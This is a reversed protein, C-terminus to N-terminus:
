RIIPAGNAGYVPPAVSRVPSLVSADPLSNDVSARLSPRGTALPRPGRPHIRTPSAPTAREDLEPTRPSPAPAPLTEAATEPRAEEPAAETAPVSPQDGHAYSGRIRGLAFPTSAALVTAALILGTVVYHARPTRAAARMAALLESMSAYRADPEPRLGVLLARRVRSPVVRGPPPRRVRGEATVAALDRLTRGNFPREGYLAEYFSVCFSYVDSRVDAPRGALQEPAMYAPTGLLTGTQTLTGGLVAMGSLTNPVADEGEYSPRALGFDTVRIRGDTGVLVNDPKFDRHVLGATHAHALGSGARLFVAVIERWSRTKEACWHRLTGGEVLEMAIYIQGGEMAADFVTIVEPHPRLRGLVKAERVLRGQLGPNSAAATHLVKLAVERDLTPDHAAYVRAM